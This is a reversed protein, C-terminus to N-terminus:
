NCLEPNIFNCLLYSKDTKVHDSLDKSQKERKGVVKSESSSECDWAPVKM